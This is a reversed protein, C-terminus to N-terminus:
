QTTGCVSVVMAAMGAKCFGKTDQLIRECNDTDKMIIFRTWSLGDGGGHGIRECNDTDKM